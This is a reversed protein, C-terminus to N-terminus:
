LSVINLLGSPVVGVVGGVVDLLMNPNSQMPFNYLLSGDALYIKLNKMLFVDRNTAATRQITLANGTAAAPVFTCSLWGSNYYEVGTTRNIFQLKVNTGDGQFIIHTPVNLISVVPQIIRGYSGSGNCWYMRLEGTTTTYFFFGNQSSTAANYLIAKNLTPLALMKYDFEIKFVGSTMYGCQAATGLTCYGGYNGNFLTWYDKQLLANTNQNYPVISNARRLALTGELEGQGGWWEEATQMGYKVFPVSRDSSQFLEFNRIMCNCNYSGSVSAALSGFTPTYSTTTTGTPFVPTIDGTSHLTGDSNYQKFYMKTGDAWVNLKYQMGMVVATGGTCSYIAGTTGNCYGIYVTPLTSSTIIRIGYHNTNSATSFIYRVNTPSLLAYELEIRFVGLNMWGLTSTTGFYDAATTGNYYTWDGLNNIDSVTGGYNTTAISTNAINSFNLYPDQLPINVQMIGNGDWIKFNRLWGKWRYATSYNWGGIWTNHTAVGTGGSTTITKTTTDLTNNYWMKITTADSTIRIHYPTNICFRNAFTVAEVVGTTGRCLSLYMYYYAGSQGIYCFFGKDATTETSSILCKSESIIGDIMFDFQMEFKYTQHIFNTCKGIDVYNGSTAGPFYCWTNNSKLANTNNNIIQVNTQTGVLGSIRDVMLDSLNQMPLYMFPITGATDSYVIFNRVACNSPNYKSFNLPYSTTAFSVPTFSYYGSDYFAAGTDNNTVIFRLNVGDGYILVHYSVGLVLAGSTKSNASTGNAWYVVFAAGNLYLMIGRHATTSVATNFVRDGNVHSFIKVDLEIRFIGDNMWGYTSTTGISALSTTKDFYSWNGVNNLDILPITGTVTGLLGSVLDIATNQIPANFVLTNYRDYLKFCRMYVGMPGTTVSNWGLVLPTATNTMGTYTGAGVSTTTQLVNNVYINIGTWVKTADYTVRIHYATNLALISSTQAGIFNTATITSGIYFALKNVNMRCHYEFLSVAANMKSFLWTQSANLRTFYVDFEVSFPLDNTGDTFTYKDNDTYSVQSTMTSFNAWTNNSKLLNSM